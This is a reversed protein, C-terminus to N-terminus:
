KDEGREDNGNETMRKELAEGLDLHRHNWDLSIEITRNKPGTNQAIKELATAIRKLTRLMEKDHNDRGAM